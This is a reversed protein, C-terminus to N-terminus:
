NFHGHTVALVTRYKRDPNPSQTPRLHGAQKEEYRRLLQHRRKMTVLFEYWSLLTLSVKSILDTHFKLTRPWRWSIVFPHAWAFWPPSLVHPPKGLSYGQDYKPRTGPRKLAKVHWPHQWRITQGALFTMFSKVASNPCRFPSQSSETPVGDIICPTVARGRNGTLGSDVPEQSTYTSIGM